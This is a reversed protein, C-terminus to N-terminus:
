QVADEFDKFESNISLKLVTSNVESIKFINLLKLIASKANKRNTAKTILYDLTTITTACLYGEIYHNEVSSVLKASQKVFPDRNLLVDLIIHTDFLIRM